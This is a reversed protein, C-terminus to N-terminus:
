NEWEEHKKLVPAEQEKQLDKEPEKKEPLRDFDEPKRQFSHGPQENLHEVFQRFQRESVLNKMGYMATQLAEQDQERNSPASEKLVYNGITTALKEKESKTPEEKKGLLLSLGNMMQYYDKNQGSKIEKLRVLTASLKKKQIDWVTLGTLASPNIAMGLGEIDKLFGNFETRGMTKKMVNMKVALRHEFEQAKEDDVPKGKEELEKRRALEARIEHLIEAQAERVFEAMAKEAKEGTPHSKLKESFKRFSAGAGEMGAVEDVMEAVSLKGDQKGYLTKEIETEPEKHKKEKKAKEQAEEIDFLSIAEEGIAKGLKEGELLGEKMEKEKKKRIQEQIYIEMMRQNPAEERLKREEEARRKKREEEAQKQKEKETPM